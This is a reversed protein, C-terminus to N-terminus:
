GKGCTSHPDTGVCPSVVGNVSVRTTLKLARQSYLRVRFECMSVAAMLCFASPGQPAKPSARSGRVEWDVLM